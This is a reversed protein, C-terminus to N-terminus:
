HTMMSFAQRCHQINDRDIRKFCENSCCKTLPIEYDKPQRKRKKKGEVDEGLLKNFIGEYKEM